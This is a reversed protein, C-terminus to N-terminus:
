LNIQFSDKEEDECDSFKEETKYYDPVNAYKFLIDERTTGKAIDIVDEMELDYNDYYEKIENEAYDKIYETGTQLLKRFFQKINNLIRKIQYM